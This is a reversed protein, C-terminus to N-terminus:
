ENRGEMNPEEGAFYRYAAASIEQITEIAEEEDSDNVMVCLIYAGNKAFIIAADNEVGTMEGTKNATVVDEPIVYPIKYLRKQNTLFEMMDDCYDVNYLEHRYIMELIRGADAPSTYNRGKAPHTRVDQLDTQHLTNACGLEASIENEVEFGADLDGDGLIETLENAANNDSEEIMIKITDKLEQTYELEGTAIKKYVATMIFLKIVSASYMPHENISFYQNTDLKKVYVGYDGYSSAIIDEVQAKLDEYGETQPAITPEPTPAETPVPTPEPSPTPSYFPNAACGSIMLLMFLCIIKKM